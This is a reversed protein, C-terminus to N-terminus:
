QIKGQSFMVAIGIKRVREHARIKSVESDPDYTICVGNPGWKFGPNNDKKCDLIPM